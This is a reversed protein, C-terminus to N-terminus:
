KASRRFAPDLNLPTALRLAIYETPDAQTSSRGLGYPVRNNNVVILTQEDFPFAATILGYPYKFSQGLGYAKPITAFAKDLSLNGSDDINLLDVLLSKAFAGSAVNVLFIKKFQARSNQQSDEEIILAEDNNIMTIGGVSNSGQELNYTGPMDAFARTTLDFRRFSVGGGNRQAIILENGSPTISMGQLAGSGGIGIPPELLKGTADFRLLSPGREEAVWFSGDAAREFARPSFDKGTLYRTSTSELTLPSVKKGQDNLNWRDLPQPEGGGSGGVRRLDIDLVYLRLLFDASKDATDFQGSILALWTGPYTGPLIDAITGIPQSDFPVKVGNITSASSALKAGAPQGDSLSDARLVARGVLQVKPTQALAPTTAL